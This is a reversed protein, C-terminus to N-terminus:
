PSWSAEQVIRDLVPLPVTGGTLVVRHFRKLDFSTGQAAQVQGRLLLLERMGIKYATAQGPWSVYRAIQGPVSLVDPAFGTNDAMYQIADASSWRQAHIGTDVVLRVARLLEYQLRGLDGYVDGDYWGLEWALREAYLAWGEAQATFFLVGRLTPLGQQERALGVQLHHGPVGEHYALTAMAYRPSGGPAVTAYFVGPRSGDLAGPVYYGGVPDARVEVSAKPALDIAVAIRAQAARVISTHTEICSSAPVLGSAAAVRAFQDQLTATTSYGLGQVRQRIEDQIRAVEALGYAHIDSASLDTTTHHKLLYAYYADGQPLAWVGDEASAWALLQAVASALSQYAPEVSESIARSAQDLLSQREGASLDAIAGIGSALPRYFPHSTAPLDATERIQALAPRLVAQPPALGEAQRARLGDVLQAVKKEVRWLREVYDEANARTQLPHVQTFLSLIVAHESTLGANISYVHHIFPRERVLDDLYFDYVDLSVRQSAWLATRDFARLRALIAEALAYTQLRFADSADDLFQDRWGFSASMELDTLGEPSRQLLARYSRELFDDFSLGALGAVVDEVAPYVPDVLVPRAVPAQKGCGLALAVLVAQFVSRRRSM